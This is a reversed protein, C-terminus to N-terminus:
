PQNDLGIVKLMVRGELHAFLDTADGPQRSTLHQEIWTIFEGAIEQSAVKYPPVDRAALGVVEFWLQMMSFFAPDNCASTLEQLLRTRSKRRTGFLADLQVSLSGVILGLAERLLDEKTGFYYLLMRDSTGAARALSRIGSDSIGNALLHAAVRERFFTKKDSM